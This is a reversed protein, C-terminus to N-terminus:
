GVGGDLFGGVLVTGLPYVIAYIRAEPPFDVVALVFVYLLLLFATASYIRWRTFLAWVLAPYLSFMKAREAAGLALHVDQDGAALGM